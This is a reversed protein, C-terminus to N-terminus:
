YIALIIKSKFNHMYWPPNSVWRLIEWSHRRQHANTKFDFVKSGALDFWIYSRHGALVFSNFCNKGWLFNELCSWVPAPYSQALHNSNSSLQYGWNAQLHLIRSRSKPHMLEHMEMSVCNHHMLIPTAECQMCTYFHAGGGLLRNTRRCIRRCVMRYRVLSGTYYDCWGGVVSRRLVCQEKDCNIGLFTGYWM